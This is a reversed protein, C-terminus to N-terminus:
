GLLACGPSNLERLTDLALKATLTLYEDAASEAYKAAYEAAYEAYKASKAASKAAYEAYKASKAAYEAYKAYKASKAAYKAASEAYKASEKSDEKECRDAAELAEKDNPMVARFLKPLLISITKKSLRVAFEVDDVVGLSGLQALGLDRLGNARATASSWSSDNLAIKFARVAPSVCGPDDGHPLGLSECIAAEICVQQGASGLGCSLGRSLISDFRQVDFTGVEFTM